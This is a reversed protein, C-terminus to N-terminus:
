INRQASIAGLPLRSLAHSNTTIVSVAVMRAIALTIDPRMVLLSGDGDFLQFPSEPVRGGRELAAKNELMPTEVPLYGHSSFCQRVKDTIRERAVAETPLIDRFGSPTGTQM